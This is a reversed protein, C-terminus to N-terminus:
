ATDACSSSTNLQPTRRGAIKWAAVMVATSILVAPWADRATRTIAEVGSSEIADPGLGDRLIWSLLISAGLFYGAAAFCLICIAKRHAVSSRALWAALVTGLV